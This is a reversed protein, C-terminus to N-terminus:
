TIALGTKETLVDNFKPLLINEAFREKSEEALGMAEDGTRQILEGFYPVKSEITFEEKNVTAFLERYLNGSQYFTVHDTVAGLGKGYKEKLDKTFPTYGFEYDPNDKLLIPEDNRDKGKALQEAQLDALSEKNAEIITEQEAGFDFAQFKDIFTIFTDQQAM